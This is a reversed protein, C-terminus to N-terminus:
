AAVPSVTSQLMWAADAERDLTAVYAEYARAKEARPATRWHALALASDAAALMWADYLAAPHIRKM